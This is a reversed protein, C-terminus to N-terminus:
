PVEILPEPMLDFVVIFRIFFDPFPQIIKHVIKFYPQLKNEYTYMTSDEIGSVATDVAMSTLVYDSQGGIKLLQYSCFLCLFCDSKM